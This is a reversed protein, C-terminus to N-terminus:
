EQYEMNFQEKYTIELQKVIKLYKKPLKNYSNNKTAYCASKYFNGQKMDNQNKFFYIELTKNKGHNKDTPIGLSYVLEVLNDGITTEIATLNYPYGNDMEKKSLNYKAM